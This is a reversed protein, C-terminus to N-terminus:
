SFRGRLKKNIVWEGKDNKSIVAESYANLKSKLDVELPQPINVNVSKNPLLNKTFGRWMDGFFDTLLDTILYASALAVPIEELIQPIQGFTASINNLATGLVTNSTQGTFTIQGGSGIGQGSQIISTLIDTVLPMFLFINILISSIVSLLAIGIYTLLRKLLSFFGDLKKAVSSILNYIVQGGSYKLRVPQNQQEYITYGQDDTYDNIVGTPVTIPIQNGSPLTITLKFDAINNQITVTGIIDTGEISVTFPQNNNIFTIVKASNDENTNIESNESQYNDSVTTQVLTNTLGNQQLFPLTIVRNYLLLQGLADAGAVDLGISIPASAGGTAFLSLTGVLLLVVGGIIVLIEDIPLNSIVTSLSTSRYNNLNNNANQICQEYLPRNIILQQCQVTMYSYQNALSIKQQPTLNLLGFNLSLLDAFDANQNSLLFAVNSESIPTMQSITPYAVLSVGNETTLSPSNNFLSPFYQNYIYPVGAYTILSIVRPIAVTPTPYVQVPTSQPPLTITSMQLIQTIEPLIVFNATSIGVWILAYLQITVNLQSVVNQQIYQQTDFYVIAMVPVNANVGAGVSSLGNQGLINSYSSYEGVYLLIQINVLVESPIGNEIPVNLTVTVNNSGPQTLTYNGTKEEFGLTIFYPVTKQISPFIGTPVTPAISIAGNSQSALMNTYSQSGSSFSPFNAIAFGLLHLPIFTGVFQGGTNKLVVPINMIESALWAGQIQVLTWLRFYINVRCANQLSYFVPQWGITYIHIQGNVNYVWIIILGLSQLLQQFENGSYQFSSNPSVFGSVAIQLDGTQLYYMADYSTLDCQTQASM